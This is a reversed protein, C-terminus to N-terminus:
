NSPTKWYKDAVISPHIRRSEPGEDWTIICYQYGKETESIGKIARYREAGIYFSCWETGDEFVEHDTQAETLVVNFIAKAGESEQDKM